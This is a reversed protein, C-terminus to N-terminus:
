NCIVNDIVKEGFVGEIAEIAKEFINNEISQV